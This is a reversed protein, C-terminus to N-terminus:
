RQKKGAQQNRPDGSELVIQDLLAMQAQTLREITAYPDEADFDRMKERFMEQYCLFVQLSKELYCGLVGALYEDDFRVVEALLAQTLVSTASDDLAQEALMSLLASRTIDHGSKADVVNFRAGNMLLQLLDDSRVYRSASTDYLRRNAYKKIERVTMESGTAKKITVRFSGAM